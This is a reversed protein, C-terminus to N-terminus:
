FHNGNSHTQLFSKWDELQAKKMVRPFKNQGGVKGKSEMWDYFKKVPVVDLLVEKLAASREVAYDDNLVKLHSDLKEKVIEADVKDDTGLYWHHAFLSEHPIGAVTFEQIAINLDNAVLEIAKNMNDVSLHEGCLSLFHKTRGTIVIESEELSTFKIVDGILYRWAGACSSLLLAYEKGEEIEDILLTEADPKIEGNADFNKDEFPVFEYFVGNNLVLRMTKRNPYAQFAIFGESALYTEIYYIPRGLLKEFGKRYPDFSVGGHVYVSLNPWIEHINKLKHYKIVKELLIQIWAPVGVVIGIDWDRAKSAIEDLKADWNRTKAIKKGPKYFHQFWFPLRAAQIGSLDGEFFSGKKNLHTSGGLMLIGATFIEPQLDYKSLTLIQRVSTKQIAKTMDKTVPIYKSSSESTGSSLAFYKVRGPWCVNKVGKQALKWWDNYIKNYTHIPVNSKFRNYFEKHGKRFGNLIDSFNYFKGFETQSAAILLEKLEKKQLDFPSTYEQELMERIRIGKKLLTGLIPM